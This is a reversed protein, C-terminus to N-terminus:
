IHDLDGWSLSWNLDVAADDMNNVFGVHLPQPELRRPLPRLGSKRVVQHQWTGPMVTTVLGAASIAKAAHTMAGVLNRAAHSDISMLELLCLFRGGFRDRARAVAVGALQHRSRVEAFIYPSEPHQRYRWDWWSGSREIGSSYNNRVMNWLADVDSPPTELLAGDAESPTRFAALAAKAVPVPLRFRQSLWTSDTPLVMVRATGASQMGARAAGRVSQENPICYTLPMGARGCDDYVARALAPWLGRGRQSEALAADVGQAIVNRRGSILAPLSIGAYHGVIEGGDEVVWSRATGFPNDWYQWQFIDREGKPNDPFIERILTRIADGDDATAPRLQPTDVEM